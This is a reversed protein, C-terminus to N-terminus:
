KAVRLQSMQTGIKNFTTVIQDASTLLFFKGADTACYKLLSSTPDGGTNVQITYVTMGAKKVNDCTIQQRSDISSQDTYWRDETNLGDTLLIIVQQYVYNPDLPPVTFPGGGVLSLWGWVLGIAQNTNGSPQMADILSNMGPWDYSLAKVPQPCSAYQEAPYLTAATGNVPATVNTDYNSSNPAGSDGRDTICGNWSQHSGPTWKGSKSKCKSQSKESSSSSQCTGNNADWDTWDIWSQNYNIPDVAVDKVFPIISVYVDGNQSAASKLQSLLNKTAKKLADMKGNDAMSGTNDLVLAVRLRTNGWQVTSSTSITLTAKNIVQLFKTPVQGTAVLVLQSGGSQTYTSTIAIGTVEKATFLANFYTIAKQSLDTSTDTAANKALMLATADLAAQMAAKDANARSYDVAAGVATVIPLLALGFTIAVNAGDASLFQRATRGITHFLWKAGMSNERTFFM